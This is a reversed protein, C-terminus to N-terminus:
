YEKVIELADAYANEIKCDVCGACGEKECKHGNCTGKIEELRKLIIEIKKEYLEKCDSYGKAYQERDYKLAKVLDEKNVDVGVRQVAKFVDNELEFRLQDQIVTVPSEYM